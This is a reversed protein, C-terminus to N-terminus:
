GSEISKWEAITAADTFQWSQDCASTTNVWWYELLYLHPLVTPLYAADAAMDQERATNGQCDGLGYETIGRNIGKGRTCTLWRVFGTNKALGGLEGQYVDVTYHDVASAPPIYSCDYGHRSATGYQYSGATMDVEVEGTPGTSLGASRAAARIAASQADFESVFDAGSPFDNEPEHHFVMMVPAGRGAPISSVFSAVNTNATKYSVICMVNGPLPACQSKAFTTPLTTSYFVRQTQLPGITSNATTWATGRAGIWTAIRTQAGAPPAAMVLLAVAALLPVIMRKHYRM